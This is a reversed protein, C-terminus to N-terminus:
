LETKNEYSMKEKQLMNIHSKIIQSLHQFTIWLLVKSITKRQIRPKIEHYPLDSFIEFPILSFKIKRSCWSKLIIHQPFTHKAATRKNVNIKQQNRHEHRDCCIPRQNIHVELVQSKSYDIWELTVSKLILKLIQSMSQCCNKRMKQCRHAKKLCM